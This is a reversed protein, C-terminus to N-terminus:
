AHLSECGAASTQVLTATQITGATLWASALAKVCQGKTQCVASQIQWHINGGEEAQELDGMGLQLLCFPPLKWLRFRCCCLMNNWTPLVHVVTSLSLSFHSCEKALWCTQDCPQTRPGWCDQFMSCLGLLYTKIVYSPFDLGAPPCYSDNVGQLNTHLLKMIASVDLVSAVSSDDSMEYGLSALGNAVFSCFNNVGRQFADHQNDLLVLHFFSNAPRAALKNFFEWTHEWWFM